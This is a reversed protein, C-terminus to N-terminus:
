SLRARKGSKEFELNIRRGMFHAKQHLGRYAQEADKASSFDIFCFGRNERLNDAKKPMRINRSRWGRFLEKVDQLKTNFPCNKWILTMSKDENPVDGEKKTAEDGPGSGRAFSAVLKFGDVTTENVVELAEQARRVSPMEAFGYGRHGVRGKLATLTLARLDPITRRLVGELTAASTKHNINKIYITATPVQEVDDDDDDMHTSLRKRKGENIMPAMEAFIPVHNGGVKTLQLSLACAKATSRETPFFEVTAFGATVISVRSVKDLHGKGKAAIVGRVDDETIEAPLNKLLIIHGARRAGQEPSPDIGANILATSVKEAAEAEALTLRTAVDAGDLLEHKAVGLAQATQQAVTDARQYLTNWAVTSNAQRKKEIYQRKKFPISDDLELVRRAEARQVHVKRGQFTADELAKTASEGMVFSVFAVGANGLAAVKSAPIEVSSVAGYQKYHTELDIETASYPIGKVIIRDSDMKIKRPADPEEPKARGGIHEEDGLLNTAIEEPADSDDSDNGDKAVGDVDNMDSEDGSDDDDFEVNAGGALAQATAQEKAWDRGGRAELYDKTSQPLSTMEEKLKEYFAVKKEKSAAREEALKDSEARRKDANRARGLNPDGRELAAKVELKSTGIYTNQLELAKTAM